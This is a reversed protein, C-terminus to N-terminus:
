FGPQAAAEILGLLRAQALGVLFDLFLLAVVLPAEGQAGRRRPLRYGRPRAASRRRGAQDRRASGARRRVRADAKWAEEEDSRRSRRARTSTAGPVTAGSARPAASM